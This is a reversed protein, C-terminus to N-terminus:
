QGRGRRRRAAATPGSPPPAALRVAAVLEVAVGPPGFMWWGLTGLTGLVMAALVLARLRPLRM